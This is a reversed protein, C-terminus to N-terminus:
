EDSNAGKGNIIDTSEIVASASGDAFRLSVTEGKTLAAAKKVVRGDSFVATYGRSLVALPDLASLRGAKEALLGRRINDQSQYARDIRDSLSLVNMRRDEVANMPSQMARSSEIASLRARYEGIRRAMVGSERVIINNFKQKLEATDPVSLEAAASPTPARVDSVFDCITYDTEHGVASIVPIRSAYIRRAVLESNFAWLDEISGGGRGVILVDADTCSNFYDIGAAVSDPAEPGQVLAPYVSIKAYPFRRGCVNIIDRVAAGTPSTVVGVHSPIKPLAKKHSSDFLGEKELKAKLQEFALYLSGIGEPEMTDCYLQYTGDRVFVSIRGHATVNMGNEPRFKLGYASSRFMVARLAGGEDKLSFYMHGSSHAKFNSIEGKVYIDGLPPNIDVLDKIYTNLETVSLPAPFRMQSIDMDM